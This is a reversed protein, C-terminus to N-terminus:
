IPYNWSFVMKIFLFTDNPTFIFFILIKIISNFFYPFLIWNEVKGFKENLVPQRKEKCFFFFVWLMSFNLSHRLYFLFQTLLSSLFFFFFLHFFFWVSFLTNPFETILDLKAVSVSKKVTWKVSTSMFLILMKQQKHQQEGARFPNTKIVFVLSFYFNLGKVPLVSYWKFQAKEGSKSDM